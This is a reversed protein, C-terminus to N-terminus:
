RRDLSDFSLYLNLNLYVKLVTLPERFQNQLKTSEGTMEHVDRIYTYLTELM